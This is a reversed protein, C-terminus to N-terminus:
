SAPSSIRKRLTSSRTARGSLVARIMYLSFGVAQAASITPPMALEQRNVVVDVFARDTTPSRADSSGARVDEPDEVRLGLIGASEALKAFDPNVCTPRSTAAMGAAKMELEVFGLSSNNFVVLKM